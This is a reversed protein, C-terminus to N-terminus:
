FLINEYNRKSIKKYHAVRAHSKDPKLKKELM